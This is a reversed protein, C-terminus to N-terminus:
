NTIIDNRIDEVSENHFHTGVRTHIVKGFTDNSSWLCCEVTIYDFYVAFLIEHNGSFNHKNKIMLIKKMEPQRHM